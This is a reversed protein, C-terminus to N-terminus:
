GFRGRSPASQGTWSLRAEPGTLPRRETGGTCGLRAGGGGKAASKAAQRSFSPRLHALPEAPLHRLGFATWVCLGSGRTEPCIRLARAGRGSFAVLVRRARPQPWAARQRDMPACIAGHLPGPCFVWLAGMSRAAKGVNVGHYGRFSSLSLRLCVSKRCTNYM